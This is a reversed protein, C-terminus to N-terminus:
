KCDNKKRLEETIADCILRTENFTIPSRGLFSLVPMEGDDLGIIKKNRLAEIETDKVLIEAKLRNIELLLHMTYESM